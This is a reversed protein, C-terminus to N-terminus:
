LVGVADFSVRVTNVSRGASLANRARKVGVPSDPYRRNHESMVAELNSDGIERAISRIKRGIHPDDIHRRVASESISVLNMGLFHFVDINFKEQRAVTRELLGFLLSSDQGDRGFMISSVVQEVEIDDLVRVAVGEGGIEAGVRYGSKVVADSVVREMLRTLEWKAEHAATRVQNVKRTLGRASSFPECVVSVGPFVEVTDGCVTVEGRRDGNKNDLIEWGLKFPEDSFGFRPLNWGVRSNTGDIWLPLRYLFGQHLINGDVLDVGNAAVGFSLCELLRKFESIEVGAFMAGYKSAM